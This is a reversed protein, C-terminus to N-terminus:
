EYFYILIGSTHTCECFYMKLAFHFYQLIFMLFERLFIFIFIFFILRYMYFNRTKNQVRVFIGCVCKEKRKHEVKREEGMIEGCENKEMKM